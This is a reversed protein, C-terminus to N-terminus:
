EKFGDKIMTKLTVEGICGDQELKKKNQFVKVCTELYDGFYNGEVKKCLYADIKTVESSKDGQKFYGKKPFKLSLGMKGATIKGVCGDQELKNEKQFQKVCAVTYDGYYNGKVKNSFFDCIKKVNNGSDGKKFYGREPLFSNPVVDTTVKKWNIGDSNLIKTFKTNVYFIDEPKNTTTEVFCWAGNSNKLLGKYSGTGVTLHIHNGTAKGDKGEYCIINGRKIIQGVKLKKIDSEEPHTLTMIVTKDGIPTKVTSTTQLVIANTTATTNLGYIKLVKMDVPAYVPDRGKTGCCEDIPYDKYNKSNYWHPKHNGQNYNQSISMKKFPYTFYYM